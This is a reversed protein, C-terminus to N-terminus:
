HGSRSSDHNAQGDGERKGSGTDGLTEAVMEEWLRCIKPLIVFIKGSWWLKEWLIGRTYLRVWTNSQIAGRRYLRVWTNTQKYELYYLRVRTKSQKVDWM